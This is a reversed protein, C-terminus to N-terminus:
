VYLISINQPPVDCKPDTIKCEPPPPLVTGVCETKGKVIYFYREVFHACHFDDINDSYFALAKRKTESGQKANAEFVPHKTGKLDAALNGECRGNQYALTSSYSMAGLRNGLTAIVPDISASLLVLQYDGAQQYRNFHEFVPEIRYHALLHEVYGEAVRYLDTHKESRLTQLFFRRLSFGLIKRVVKGPLTIFFATILWRLWYKQERHYYVIFDFTTNRNVLTGCVDFYVFQEHTWKSVNHEPECNRKM